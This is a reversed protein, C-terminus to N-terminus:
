RPGVGRAKMYVYGHVYLFIIKFFVKLVFDEFFLFSPETHLVAWWTMSIVLDSFPKLPLGLIGRPYPFPLTAGLLGM